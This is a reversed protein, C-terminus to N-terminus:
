EESQNSKAEGLFFKLAVGENIKYNKLNINESTNFAKSEPRLQKQETNVNIETLVGVGNAKGYNLTKIVTMTQGNESAVSEEKTLVWKGDSFAAKEYKPVVTLTGITKNAVIETLVDTSDFKLSFSPIVAVGTTDTALIERQNLGQSFKYGYFRQPFTPPIIHEIFSSISGKLEEKVEKFGEPLGIVEISIREPSSTWYVRFIVEDIKGFIQQENIQKTIRSSEIDVVFDKVGKNKLSYIKSEFNKVYSNPDQAFVNGMM